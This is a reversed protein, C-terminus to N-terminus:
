QDYPSGCGTAGNAEILNSHDPDGLTPSVFVNLGVVWQLSSGLGSIHYMWPSHARPDPDPMVNSINVGHPYKKRLAAVIAKENDPIWKSPPIMELITVPQGAVHFYKAGGFATKLGQPHGTNTAAQEETAGGSFDGYGTTAAAPFVCPSASAVLPLSFLLLAVTLVSARM